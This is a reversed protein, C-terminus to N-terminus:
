IELSFDNTVEDYQSKDTYVHIHPLSNLSLDDQIYSFYQESSM